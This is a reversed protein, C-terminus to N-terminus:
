KLTIKFFKFDLLEELYAMMERCCPEADPWRSLLHTCAFASMDNVMLYVPLEPSQYEPKEILLRKMVCVAENLATALPELRTIVAMETLPTSLAYHTVLRTIRLDLKFSPFMRSLGSYNFIGAQELLLTPQSLRASIDQRTILWPSATVAPPRSVADADHEALLEEKYLKALEVFLM